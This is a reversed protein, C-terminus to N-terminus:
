KSFTILNQRYIVRHIYFLNQKLLGYWATQIKQM